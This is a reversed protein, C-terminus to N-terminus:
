EPLAKFADLGNESIFKSKEADTKFESRSKVTTNRGGNGGGNGGGGGGPAKLIRDRMPYAEVIIELAEDVSALEGPRAKSFIKNEGLYAVVKGDEIKFHKGFYAEALDGPLITKEALFQSGAFGNGILLKRENEILSEITKNATLLKAEYAETISKKIAEIDVGSKLKLKNLGDVGGLESVMAMVNNVDEPNLEGFKELKEKFDKASLRHTKSEGNLESIKSRMQEADFAFERNNDADDIYVPKGDQLVAHKEADLKLILAM